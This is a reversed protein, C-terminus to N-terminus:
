KKNNKGHNKEKRSQNTTFLPKGEGLVLPNVLGHMLDAYGSVTSEGPKGEIGPGASAQIGFSVVL